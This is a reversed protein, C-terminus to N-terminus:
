FMERKVIEAPLSGLLFREIEHPSDRTTSLNFLFEYGGEHERFRCLSFIEDGSAIQLFHFTEPRPSVLSGWDTDETLALPIGHCRERAYEELLKKVRALSVRRRCHLVSRDM